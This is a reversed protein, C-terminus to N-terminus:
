EIIVGLIQHKGEVDMKQYVNTLHKKVTPVSIFLERSIESNSKGKMACILVEFERDTLAFRDRVEHLFHEFITNSDYVTAVYKYGEDGYKKCNVEAYYHAKGISIRSHVMNEEPIESFGEKEIKEGLSKCLTILSRYLEGRSEEGIFSKEGINTDELHYKDDFICLGVDNIEYLAQVSISLPDIGSKNEIFKRAVNVLHPRSLKLIELEKATFEGLPDPRHIGIGAVYGDDGIYINGEISHNMGAPVLLENYYRTKMREDPIFVDSDRFMVPQKHSVIPLADDIDAYDNLYRELHDDSWDVFIFDEFNIHEGENRYVYVDGKQFEVLDKLSELFRTFAKQYNDDEHLEAFIQNLRFLEKNDLTPTMASIRERLCKATMGIICLFLTGPRSSQELIIM